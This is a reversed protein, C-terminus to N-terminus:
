CRCVTIIGVFCNPFQEAKTDVCQDIMREYRKDSGSFSMRRASLRTSAAVFDMTQPTMSLEFIMILKKERGVCQTVYNELPLLNM